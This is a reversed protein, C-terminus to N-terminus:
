FEEFEEIILNIKLIVEFILLENVLTLAIIEYYVKLLLFFFLLFKDNTAEKLDQTNSRSPPLYLFFNFM